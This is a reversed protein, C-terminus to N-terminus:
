YAAAIHVRFCTWQISSIIKPTRNFIRFFFHIKPLDRSIQKNKMNKPTVGDDVQLLIPFLTFYHPHGPTQNRNPSLKKYHFHVCVTVFRIHGPYWNPCM